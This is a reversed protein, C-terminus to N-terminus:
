TNHLVAVVLRLKQPAHIDFRRMKQTHQGTGLLSEAQKLEVM